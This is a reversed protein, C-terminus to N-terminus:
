VHGGFVNTVPKSEFEFMTQLLTVGGGVHEGCVSVVVIVLWLSPPGISVAASSHGPPVTVTPVGVQLTVIPRGDPRISSVPSM